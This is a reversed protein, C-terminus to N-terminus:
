QISPVRFRTLSSRERDAGENRAWVAVSSVPISELLVRRLWGLWDESDDDSPVCFAVPDVDPRRLSRREIRQGELAGRLAVLWVELHTGGRGPRTVPLGLGATCAESVGRSTEVLDAREYIAM